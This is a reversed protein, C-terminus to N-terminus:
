FSCIGNEKKLLADANAKTFSIPISEGEQKSSPFDSVLKAFGCTLNSIAHAEAGNKQVLDFAYDTRRYSLTTFRTTLNRLIELSEREQFVRYIVPDRSQEDKPLQSWHTVPSTDFTYTAKVMKDAVFAVHQALGGGLSHGTLYIPIPKGDTDTLLYLKNILLIAHERASNYEKGFFPFVGSL